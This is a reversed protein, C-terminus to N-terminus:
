NNFLDSKWIDNYFKIIKNIEKDNESYKLWFDKILCIENIWIVTDWYNDVWYVWFRPISWDVIEFYDEDFPSIDFDIINECSIYYKREWKWWNCISFVNYVKEFKLRWDNLLYKVKM